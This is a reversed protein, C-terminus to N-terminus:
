EGKSKAAPQLTARGAFRLFLRLRLFIEDNRAQGPIWFRKRRRSAGSLKISSSSEPDLGSHRLTPTEGPTPKPIARRLGRFIPIRRKAGSSNFRRVADARRFVAPRASYRSTVPKETKRRARRTETTETNFSTRKQIGPQALLASTNPTEGPTPKAM